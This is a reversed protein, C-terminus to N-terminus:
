RGKHSGGRRALDGGEAWEFKIQFGAFQAAVATRDKELFLGEKDELQQQLRSGGTEPTCYPHQWSRKLHLVWRVISRWHRLFSM